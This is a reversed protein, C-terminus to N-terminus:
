FKVTVGFKQAFLADPTLITVSDISVAGGISWSAFIDVEDLDKLLSGVMVAVIEVSLDGVEFAIDYDVELFPYSGPAALCVTDADCSFAVITAKGGPPDFEMILATFLTEWAGIPTPRFDLQVTAGVEGINIGFLMIDRLLDLGVGFPSNGFRAINTITLRLPTIRWTSTISMNTPQLSSAGAGALVFEMAIDNRIGALTLGTIFLKEEQPEFPISPGVVGGLSPVPAFTSIIFGLRSAPKCEGFCEFGQRAGVWTESRVTIGSVTQGALILVLGARFDPTQASGFNGFLARLGLTLGAISLTVEAIKKRFTLAPTLQSTTFNGAAILLADTWAGLYINQVVPDSLFISFFSLEPATDADFSLGAAFGNACGAAAPVGPNGPATDSLCWGRSASAGSRVDQFELINPAFALVTTFTMAGVTAKASFLQVEVGHFTFLTTSTLDLGSISMSLVLDAEFKVAVYDVKCPRFAPGPDCDRIQAPFFVLDLGFSGTVPAAQATWSLAGALALACVLATIRRFM